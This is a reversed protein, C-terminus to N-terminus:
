CPSWNDKILIVHTVSKASFSFNGNDDQDRAVFEPEPLITVTHTSPPNVSSIWSMVEKSRLPAGSVRRSEVVELAVRRRAGAPRLITQAVACSLRTSCWRSCRREASTDICNVPECSTIRILLPRHLLSKFAFIPNSYHRCQKSRYKFWSVALLWISCTKNRLNWCCSYSKLLKSQLYSKLNM